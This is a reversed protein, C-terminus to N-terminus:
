IEISKNDLPIGVHKTKHKVERLTILKIKDVKLVNFNNNKLFFQNIKWYRCM